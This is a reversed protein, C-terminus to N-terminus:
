DNSTRELIDDYITLMDQGSLISVHGEDFGWKAVADKQARLDLQSRLTVAGDNNAMFFSCDGKHSILLHYDIKTNLSQRFIKEIFPSGPVVDHRSPIVAPASEM